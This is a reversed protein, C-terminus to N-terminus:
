VKTLVDGRKLSGAELVRVHIGRLSLARGRDDNVFLMADMGFRQVFKKCGTHPEDTVEFLVSGATLRDGPKLNEASLDLDVLLNDGAPPWAAREGGAIMDIVRANMLTVQNGTGKRPHINHEWRDGHLGREPSFEAVELVKRGNKQPRAVIMEIAGGDKPSAIAELGLDLQERVVHRRQDM